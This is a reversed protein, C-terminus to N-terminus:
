YVLDLDLDPELDLDIIQHLTTAKTHLVHM